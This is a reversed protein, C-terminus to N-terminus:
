DASGPEGRGASIKTQSPHMPATNAPKRTSQTRGNQLAVVADRELLLCMVEAVEKLLRRIEDQSLREVHDAADLVDVLLDVGRQHLQM